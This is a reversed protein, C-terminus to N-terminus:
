IVERSNVIKQVSTVSKNYKSALDEISLGDAYDNCISMDTLLHKVLVTSPIAFKDEQFVDLFALFKDGLLQYLTNFYNQGTVSDLRDALAEVQDETYNDFESILSCPSKMNRVESYAEWDEIYDTDNTVTYKQKAGNKNFLQWARLSVERFSELSDISLDHLDILDSNVDDFKPNVIHRDLIEDATSVLRNSRFVFNSLTNRIRTFLVNRMNKIDEDKRSSAVKKIFEVADSIALSVLDDKDFYELYKAFYKSVVVKSLTSIYKWCIETAEGDIVFESLKPNQNITSNSTKKAM